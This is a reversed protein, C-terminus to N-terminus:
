PVLLTEAINARLPRAVSAPFKGTRRPAVKTMLAITIVMFRRIQLRSYVKAEVLNLSSNVYASWVWLNTDISDPLSVHALSKKVFEEHSRYSERLGKWIHEM